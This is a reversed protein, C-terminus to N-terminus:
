GTKAFNTWYTMMKRSLAVEEKPLQSAPDRTFNRIPTFANVLDQPFGFVMSLEEAHDAGKIWRQPSDYVSFVHDYVYFFAKGSENVSYHANAAKIVGANFTVDSLFEVARDRMRLKDNPSTWDVYQNVIAKTVTATKNIFLADLMTGVVDKEFMDQTYGNSYDENRSKLKDEVFPMSVAGDASNVGILLDFKGFFQLIDWALITKNSIIDAPKLKVFDGDVVPYYEDSQAIINNFVESPLGRLCEVTESQLAKLCNTRNALDIFRSNPDENLAWPLNAVGSESIVRQFLGSNGPYLAQYIVSAAGASEGFITVSMPDGGFARINSNVWKIAMHQDWLGYNGALEGDGTSLFGLASLRYNLTVLIVNNLAVFAKGNYVDQAGVQFGGGYIWVMVTLNKTASRDGGPVYVNLYLCDESFVYESVNYYSRISDINQICRNPRTDALFPKTFAAKQVSNQFRLRGVPPEAFPIGLYTNIKLPTGDFSVDELQGIITGINTRVTVNESYAFRTLILAVLPIITSVM